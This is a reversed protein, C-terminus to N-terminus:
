KKRALSLAINLLQVTQLNQRPIRSCTIITFIMEKLSDMESFVYCKKKLLLCSNEDNKLVHYHIQMICLKRNNNINSLIKSIVPRLWVSLSYCLSVGPVRGMSGNQSM